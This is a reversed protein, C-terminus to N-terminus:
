IKKASSYKFLEHKVTLLIVIKETKERQATSLYLSSFIYAFAYLSIIVCDMYWSFLYGFEFLSIYQRVTQQFLIRLVAIFKMEVKM